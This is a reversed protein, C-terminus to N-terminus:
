DNREGRIKKELFMAYKRKVKEYSPLTLNESKYYNYLEKNMLTKDYDKLYFYEKELKSITEEFPFTENSFKISRARKWNEDDVSELVGNKCKKWELLKDYDYGDLVGKVVFLERLILAYTKNNITKAKKLEVINGNIVGLHSCLLKYVNEKCMQLVVPKLEDYCEDCLVHKSFMLELVSPNSNNLSELFVRGDLVTALGYPTNLTECKPRVINSVMEFVTPHYVVKVDIDSNYDNDNKDLDYNQSGILVTWDCRVNYNIKLYEKIEKLKSKVKDNFDNERNLM